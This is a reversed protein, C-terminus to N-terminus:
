CRVLVDSLNLVKEFFFSLVSVLQLENINKGKGLEDLWLQHHLRLLLHLPRVPQHTGLWPQVRQQWYPILGGSDGPGGGECCIYIGEWVLFLFVYILFIVLDLLAYFYIEPISPPSAHKGSVDIVIVSSRFSVGFFIIRVKLNSFDFFCLFFFIVLGM